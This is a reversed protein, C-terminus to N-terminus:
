FIKQFNNELSKYVKEHIEPLKKSSYSLSQSVINVINEPYNIPYAIM